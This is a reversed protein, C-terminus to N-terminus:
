KRKNFKIDKINLQITSKERFNNEDISYCIDFSNGSRIYDFNNAQQFAIAPYSKFPEDEHIIGLKIHEKSPGVIRGEGNDSVNESLFVPAMNEPGFPQFQKLIRFFKPTIEALKLESDIEIQPVLQEELITESVIKEFRERFKSVNDIKMTLGAAYMHGGFNELLDSCKEIAQYIDYGTVSRASGTAMGNSATLIVTPRYYSEILRSAVIGVVGKHWKSNYLVTARKESMDQENSLMRLADQTITRDINKRADNFFDVSSAGTKAKAANVALLLEVAQHASEMRGAANIRPGLKFVIDEVAITKGSLGSINIISKLGERPNKNLQILGFHALVRNEDVIPVIDSAISVVVLDLFEILNEFPINNTKSYAQILKFGVGCGSLEKFPYNCDPRKPDLVAVANPLEAGPYHHDCIIFDVGNKKAFDVKENAKIGCDLAIILSFGKDIAYNIGQISIGYGESYRDPVYFDINSYFTKLFSYMLAVSTTGDVDYDGYILINENNRIAKGIREVALNMDKMLFPDYLDSLEPRFFKRAEDFTKVGRQILLNALVPEINLEKALKEVDDKKGQQKLVWRKEM